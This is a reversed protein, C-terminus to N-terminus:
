PRMLLWKAFAPFQLEWTKESHTGGETEIYVTQTVQNKLLVNYLDRADSLYIKPFNKRSPDSTENTGITLYIAQNPSCNNNVYELFSAKAFWIAPSFVGIATFIEPFRCGAYVSILGGMSSGAMYTKNSITHFNADMWPKLEYVIWKIYTEGEGGYTTGQLYSISENVNTNIWPSYENFRQDTPCDIGVVIMNLGMQNEIEDLTHHINWSANFASTKQDFLNHGDHMYLVPYSKTNLGYGTPLYIHITKERNFSRIQKTEVIITGM